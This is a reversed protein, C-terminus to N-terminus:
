KYTLSFTSKVTHGIYHTILAHSKRIIPWASRSILPELGLRPMVTPPTKWGITCSSLVYLLVPTVCIRQVCLIIIYMDCYIDTNIPEFSSVCGSWRQKKGRVSTLVTQDHRGLWVGSLARDLKIKPWHNNYIFL